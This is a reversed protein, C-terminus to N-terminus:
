GGRAHAVLSLWGSTSAPPPLSSRAFTSDLAVAQPLSQDPSPARLDHSDRMMTLAGALAGCGFIVIAAAARRWALRRRLPLVTQSLLRQRWDTFSREEPLGDGPDSPPIALPGPEAHEARCAACGALHADLLLAEEADLEGAQHIILLERFRDHDTM